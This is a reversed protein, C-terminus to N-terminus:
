WYIPCSNYMTTCSYTHLKEYPACDKAPFLIVTMIANTKLSNSL